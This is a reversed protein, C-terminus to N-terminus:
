YGFSCRIDCLYKCKVSSLLLFLNYPIFCVKSTAARNANHLEPWEIKHKEEWRKHDDRNAEKVEPLHANKRPM